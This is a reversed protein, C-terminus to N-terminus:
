RMAKVAKLKERAREALPGKPEADICRQYHELAARKNGESALMSALV